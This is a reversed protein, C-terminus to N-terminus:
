NGFYNSWDSISYFTWNNWDNRIEKGWYDRWFTNVSSANDIGLYNSRSIIRILLNYSNSDEDVEDLWFRYDVIM